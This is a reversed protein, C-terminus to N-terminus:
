GIELAAKIEAAKAPGIGNAEILETISARALGPLNDFRILLRESLRLVNEGPIGSRLVIALLEATSLVEAGVKILRERPRDHEAMDRIMPVYRATERETEM